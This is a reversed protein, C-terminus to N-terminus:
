QLYNKSMWSREEGERPKYFSAQVGGVVGCYTGLSRRRMEMAYLGCFEKQEAQWNEGAV